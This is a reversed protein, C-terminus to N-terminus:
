LDESEMITGQKKFLSIATMQPLFSWCRPNLQLDQFFVPCPWFIISKLDLNLIFISTRSNTAAAQWVCFGRVSIQRWGTCCFYFVFCTAEKRGVWCVYNIASSKFLEKCFYSSFEIFRHWYVVLHTSSNCLLWASCKQVYLICHLGSIITASLTILRSNNDFDTTGFCEM